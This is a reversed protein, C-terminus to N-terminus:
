DGARPEGPPLPPGAESPPKRLQRYWSWSVALSVDFYETEYEGFSVPGAISFSYTLSGRRAEMFLVFSATWEDLDIRRLEPDTVPEKTGAKPHNLLIDGEARLYGVGFGIGLRGADFWGKSKAEGLLNLAPTVYTAYGDLSTGVDETPSWILVEDEPRAQRGFRFATTNWVVNVGCKGGCFTLM